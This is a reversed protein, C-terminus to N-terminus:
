ASRRRIPIVTQSVPEFRSCHKDFATMMKTREKMYLEQEYAGRLGRSMQDEPLAHDLQREIFPIYIENKRAWAVFGNRASHPNLPKKWRMSDHIHTYITDDSFFPEGGKRERSAPFIVDTKKAKPYREQMKLLITKVSPTIPIPRVKGDLLGGAKRHNFPIHWSLDHWHIEDWTAERLEGPRFRWDLVLM